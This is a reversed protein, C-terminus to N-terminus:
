QEGGTPDDRLTLIDEASISDKGRGKGSGGRKGKRGKHGFNGSGKGGRLILIQETIEFLKQYDM